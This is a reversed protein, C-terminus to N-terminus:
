QYGGRILVRELREWAERHGLGEALARRAITLVGDAGLVAHARDLWAPPRQCAIRGAELKMLALRNAADQDPPAASAPEGALDLRSLFTALGIARAKRDRARELCAQRLRDVPIGADLRAQWHW